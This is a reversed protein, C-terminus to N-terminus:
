KNQAFASSKLISFLDSVPNPFEKAIENAIDLPVGQDVMTKTFTAKAKRRKMSTQTVLGLSQFALKSGYMVSSLLSKAGM